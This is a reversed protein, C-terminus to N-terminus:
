CEGWFLNLTGKSESVGNKRFRAKATEEGIMSAFYSFGSDKAYKGLGNILFDVSKSGFSRDCYPNRCLFTFLCYNAFPMQNVMIGCGLVGKEEVGLIETSELISPFGNKHFYLYWKFYEDRELDNLLRITM